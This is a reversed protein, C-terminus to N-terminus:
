GSGIPVAEWESTDLPLCQQCFHGGFPTLHISRRVIRARGTARVAEVV